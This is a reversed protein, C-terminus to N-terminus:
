HVQSVHMKFRIFRAGPVVTGVTCVMPHNLAHWGRVAEAGPRILVYSRLNPFYTTLGNFRELQTVGASWSPTMHLVTPWTLFRHAFTVVAGCKLM